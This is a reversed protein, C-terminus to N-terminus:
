EITSLFRMAKDRESVARGASQELPTLLTELFTTDTLIIVEGLTERAKKCHYAINGSITNIYKKWFFDQLCYQDKEIDLLNGNREEWEIILGVSASNIFGNRLDELWDHADDHLQRAIIYHRFFREFLAAQAFEDCQMCMIIPALAYGLSKEALYRYKSYDPMIEPIMFCEGQKSLKCNGQEWLIANEIGDLIKQVAAHDNESVLLSRFIASMERICKVALPLQGATAEGDVTKDIITYGIWGFVTAVALPFHIDSIVPYSSKIKKFFHYPLLAIESSPDKVQLSAVADAFDRQLLAGSNHFYKQCDSIVKKAFLKEDHVPEETSTVQVAHDYAQLAEVCCASVYASCSSYTTRNDIKSEIFLPSAPWQGDTHSALLYEIAPALTAPDEGFSLLASIALATALSSHWCNSGNRKKLVMDKLMRVQKGRYSKSLFYVISCIDHYYRSSINGTGIIEDFYGQLPPLVINFRSLFGAINANVVIDIDNWEPERMDSGIIWTQYPGGAACENGILLSAISKWVEETILSADCASIAQLAVFTDDLDDPYSKQANSQDNRQWYNFSWNASRERLLFHLGRKKIANSQPDKCKELANIILGTYFTTTRSFGGQAQQSSIYALAENCTNQIKKSLRYNTM